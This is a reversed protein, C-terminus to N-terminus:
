NIARAILLFRRESLPIREVTVSGLITQVQNRISEGAFLLLIANGPAWDILAPLIASFRDLARCTVFDAEPKEIDEFRAPILHARDPPTVARLAERLVELLRLLENGIRDPRKGLRLGLIGVCGVEGRPRDDGVHEKVEVLHEQATSLLSAM